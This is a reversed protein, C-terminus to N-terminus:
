VEKKMIVVDSNSDSVEGIVRKNYETLDKYDNKIDQQIKYGKSYEPLHVQGLFQYMVNILNLYEQPEKIDENTKKQIDLMADRYYQNLLASKPIDPNNDIIDKTEDLSQLIVKVPKKNKLGKTQKILEQKAMEIDRVYDDSNDIKKGLEGVVRNSVTSFEGTNRM